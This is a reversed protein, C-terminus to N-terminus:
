QSRKAPFIIKFTSGVGETSSINLQAQHRNIVHKVIALGLGTGGTERSRGRDVRYFRETLRPIHEAAIGIGSDQVSFEALGGVQQSWRVDIEGGTPTYRIANSILNSFASRLEHSSGILAHESEIFLVLRHRGASLAEGEQLLIKLMLPVNVREEILTNQANELQSLALLDNVLGEMRRTQAGMLKLARRSMENELNPMDQLTEIFGNVVTLPTRLEHSVNAVFDRRMTEIRELHTIDSSILLKKNVGYAVVKISLVLDDQRMGRLILPESYHRMALYRVFEPQRALYTIHQGIDRSNELGFHTEARPNCWEIHDTEDLIVVGEPLASTAQEMQHLAALYKEQAANQKRRMKNLHSFVEDWLGNAEPVASSDPAIAWNELAALQRFQAFLLGLILVGFCLVASFAGFFPWLIIAVLLIAM